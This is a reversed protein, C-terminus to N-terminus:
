ASASSKCHTPVLQERCVLAATLPASPPRLRSPLLAKADSVTSSLEVYIDESRRKMSEINAYIRAKEETEKSKQMYIM